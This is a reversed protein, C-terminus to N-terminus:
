TPQYIIKEGELVFVGPGREETVEYRKNLMRIVVGPYVRKHVKVKVDNSKEMISRIKEKEEVLVQYENTKSDRTETLKQILVNQEKQPKPHKCSHDFLKKIDDLSKKASLVEDVLEKLRIYDDTNAGVEIVTKSYSDSGLVAAEVGRMAHTVDGVLASKQSNKDGVHVIGECSINCNVVSNVISINGAANLEANEAFSATMDGGSTVKSNTGRVGSKIIVSGDASVTANEVNDQIIADGKTELVLGAEVYGKVNVTKDSHINGTKQCVGDKLELNDAVELNIGNILLIGDETVRLTGDAEKKIGDLAQETTKEQNAIIEEGKVNKGDVAIKPPILKGVIDNTKVNWPYSKELYNIQGNPLIKGGANIEKDFEISANVGDKAPLGEAVLFDHEVIKEKNIEELKQKIVDNKIGYVVDHEHLTKIVHSLLINNKESDGDPRSLNITAKLNDSSVKVGPDISLNEEDYKVIGLWLSRYEECRNVSAKEIGESYKLSIEKGDVGDIEEKYVNLGAKSKSNSKIVAIVQEPSVARKNEDESDIALKWEITDDSGDVPAIGEAVLLDLKSTKEKNINALILKIADEKIGYIVGHETLTSIVHLLLIDADNSESDPYLLSMTVKLKDDSVKIGSKVTLTDSDLEVVGLWLAVYSTGEKTKRKEVGKGCVFEKNTGNIGAIEDDYVNIGSSFKTASKISAILQGPLISRKNIDESQANVYWEIASNSGNVAAKGEAVIVNKIVAGTQKANDLASKINKNNIGYKIGALEIMNLIDTEVVDNSSAAVNGSYIDTHVELKDESVSFGSDVSLTGSNYTLMGLHASEYTLIGDEEQKAVVGEGATIQQGFGPRPNKQKGYVNKGKTGQTAMTMVAIKKNPVVLCESNNEPIDEICWEISSNKGDEVDGKAIIVPEEPINHEDVSKLLADIAERDIGNIVKLQKLKKLIDNAKVPTGKGSHRVIKKISAIKGDEPVAIQFWGNATPEEENSVIDPNPNSM